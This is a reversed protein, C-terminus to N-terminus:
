HGVNGLQDVVGPALVSAAAPTFDDGGSDPPALACSIATLTTTNSFVTRQNFLQLPGSGTLLNLVVINDVAGCNTTDVTMVRFALIAQTGAVNLIASGFIPWESLGACAALAGSVRGALPSVVRGVSTLNAVNFVYFVSGSFGTFCSQQANADVASCAMIVFLGLLALMAVRISRKM